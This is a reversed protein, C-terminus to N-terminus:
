THSSWPNSDSGLNVSFTENNGGHYILGGNLGRRYKTWAGGGPHDATPAVYTHEIIDPYVNPESCNVIGLKEDAMSYWDVDDGLKKFEELTEQYLTHSVPYLTLFGFSAFCGDDGLIVKVSPVEVPGYVSEVEAKNDRGGLQFLRDSLCGALREAEDKMGADHLGHLWGAIHSLRAKGRETFFLRRSSRGSEWLKSLHGYGANIIREMERSPETERVTSM